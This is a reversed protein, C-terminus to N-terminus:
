TELGRGRSVCLKGDRSWAFYSIQESTFNSLQRAPEGDLPRGWINSVGGRNEVYTVATGDPTWQLGADWFATTPLPM